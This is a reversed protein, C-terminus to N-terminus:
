RLVTMATGTPVIASDTCIQEQFTMLRNIIWGAGPPGFLDPERSVGLLSVFVYFCDSQFFFFVECTDASKESRRCYATPTKLVATGPPVPESFGGGLHAPGGVPLAVSPRFSTDGLRVASISMRKKRPRNRTIKVESSTLIHTEGPLEGM